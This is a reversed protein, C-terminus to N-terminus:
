PTCKPLYISEAITPETKPDAPAHIKVVQLGGYIEYSLGITDDDIRFGAASPDDERMPAIRGRLKGTGLEYIQAIGYESVVVFRKADLQFVSSGGKGEKGRNQGSSTAIMTTTCPGACAAWSVVLLDGAVEVDVQNPKDVAKGYGPPPSLKLPRDGALSWAANHVVVAKLDTTAALHPTDTPQLEQKYAAIAAALKKGIRKCKTGLCVETDKVEAVPSLWAKPPPPKVIWTATDNGPDLKMCGKDWCVVLDIGSNAVFVGNDMNMVCPVERMPVRAASPRGKPQAFAVTSCVVLV